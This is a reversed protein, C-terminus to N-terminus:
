LAAAHGAPKIGGWLFGPAGEAAFRETVTLAVIPLTAPAVFPCTPILKSKQGLEFDLHPCHPASVTARSSGVSTRRAPRRLPERILIPPEGASKRNYSTKGPAQEATKVQRINNLVQRALHVHQENRGAQLITELSVVLGLEDRMRQHNGKCGSLM